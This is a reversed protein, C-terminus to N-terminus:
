EAYEKIIQQTKAESIKNMLRQGEHEDRMTKSLTITSSVMFLSCIALYGKAVIDAPMFLIGAVMACISLAFSTKVYFVWGRSNSQMDAVTM